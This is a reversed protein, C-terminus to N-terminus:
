IFYLLDASGGDELFADSPGACLSLPLVQQINGLGKSFMSSNRHGCGHEDVLFTINCVDLSPASNLFCHGM